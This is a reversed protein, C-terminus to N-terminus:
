SPSKVCRNAKSTLPDRPDVGAGRRDRYVQHCHSCADSIVNTAESVADQSRTQSAKYATKGAEALEQTFKIWEPENVPVPKGNECQRGPTLMLPASEALTVAAYDVLEWPSYLNTGWAVWNLPESKTNESLPRQESPDHTQVNFILNANPFLIGRMVQSLNGVAPFSPKANANQAQSRQTQVNFLVICAGVAALALTRRLKMSCKGPSSM